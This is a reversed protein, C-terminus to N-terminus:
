IRFVCLAPLSTSNASNFGPPRIDTNSITNTLEPHVSNDVPIYFFPLVPQSPDEINFSSAFYNNCISYASVINDCCHKTIEVDSSHTEVGSEMGCTAVEGTLSVKTAVVSGECSHSAFNVIVGSFLILILLPISLITKM